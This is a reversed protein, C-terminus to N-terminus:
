RGGARGPPPFKEAKLYFFGEEAEERKEERGVERGDAWPSSVEGGEFFVARDVM